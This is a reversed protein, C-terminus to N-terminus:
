SGGSKCLPYGHPHLNWGQGQESALRDLTSRDGLRPVEIHRARHGAGPPPWVAPCPGWRVLPHQASHPPDPLPLSPRSFPEVLDRLLWPGMSASPAPAAQCSGGPPAARSSAQQPPHRPPRCAQPVHFNGVLSPIQAAGVVWLVTASIGSGKGVACPQLDLPHRWLCSQLVFGSLGLPFELWDRQFTPRRTWDLLPRLLSPSARSCGARGPGLGLGCADDRCLHGRGLRCFRLGALLQTLFASPWGLFRWAPREGPDEAPSTPLAPGGATAMFVGDVRAQCGQFAQGGRLGLRFTLLPPRPEPRPPPLQPPPRVTPLGWLITNPWSGLCLCVGRRCSLLALLPQGPGTPFAKPLSSEKSSCM